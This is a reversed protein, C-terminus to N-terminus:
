IKDRLKIELPQPMTPLSQPQFLFVFFRDDPRIWENPQGANPLLAKPQTKSVNVPTGGQARTYLWRSSVTKCNSSIIKNKCCARDPSNKNDDRLYTNEIHNFSYKHFVYLL